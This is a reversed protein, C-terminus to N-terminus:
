KGNWFVAVSGPSSAALTRTAAITSDVVVNSIVGWSDVVVGGSCTILWQTGIRTFSCHAPVTQPTHWKPLSVNEVGLLHPAELGAKAFLDEKMLLASIVSMDMINRLEAFVVDKSALEAFKDTMNKAWANAIASAKATKGTASVRSEEETLAKAGSGNIQWALGDDSKKLSEYACELWFRPSSNGNLTQRRKEAMQLVSPMDNIAATEFGMALRKMKYDAAVLVNAYRSDTPVGTLTIVNNGFEEEARRAHEPGFSRLFSTFRRFREVGEKTPDISVSIGYDRRANDATALAVLFDELRVVPMGTTVGVINGDGDVTWGEGPGALVIDQTEPYVFVYELRQIGAMYKIEDPLEQNSSIATHLAQEIGKLSIMRMKSNELLAGDVKGAHALLQERMQNKLERPVQNLIGSADVSIGGVNQFFGGGFQCYVHTPNALLAVVIVGCCVAWRLWDLKTDFRKSM